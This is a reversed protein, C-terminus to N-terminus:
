ASSGAQRKALRNSTRHSKARDASQFRGNGSSQDGPSPDAIGSSEPLSDVKKSFATILIQYLKTNISYTIDYVRKATQL